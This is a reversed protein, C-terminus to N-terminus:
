KAIKEARLERIVTIKIQGPYAMEKKIKDSLDTALKVAALDDIKEPNVVVRIERGAQLAYVDSIGSFSKVLNELKQLRKVYEEYDEYRAGPRSGSIADAIYVLVAEKSTFPEDEHHQAVCALVPEPIGHKRLFEVGLQVHSGEEETIVKGIDHLLCGLRVINVQAGVEYALAVGIKTEELTHSIMNQGYSFRFKFRGLMRVVERPLNYVKLQHCLDEGAKFMIKEVENKTRAVIEEIRAPQIRGDILLKELAMRAIERRVSDFSSLRIVGEEDLDVDVGTAKEFARINRGERGIVRGKMDEDSIKVSSVTYEAVYDTAGHYMADVLIEKAKSEAKENAEEEAEKIKLAIEATLKKEVVELILKKAEEKNLRAIRELKQLQEKKIKEIEQRELLLQKEKQSFLKEREQLAGIKRDIEAEQRRIKERINLANEELKRAQEVAQTRIKFAEDKAELIIEKARAEIALLKKQALLMEKKSVIPKQFVLKEKKKAVVPKKIKASSKFISVINGLFSM